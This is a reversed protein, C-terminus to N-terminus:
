GFSRTLHCESALVLPETANKGSNLVKRFELQLEDYDLLEVSFGFPLDQEDQQGTAIIVMPVNSKGDVRGKSTYTCSSIQGLRKRRTSQSRDSKYEYSVQWDHQLYWKLSATVPNYDPM